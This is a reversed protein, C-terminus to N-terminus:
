PRPGKGVTVNIKAGARLKKRPVPTQALVKGKKRASSARHTVRGLRCHARALKSRAKGVTLGIVNPVVCRVPAAPRLFKAAVAHNATM